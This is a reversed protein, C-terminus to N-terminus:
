VGHVTEVLESMVDAVLEVSAITKAYQMRVPGIAGITGYAHGPVGYQGLVVSLPWLLGGKNEQGIVVRVGKYDPIEEFVAQALSGDEVGQVVSRVQDKDAFEPQDLLKRLGDFYHDLSELRDENKLMLVTSGVLDKEFSSLLMEKSEIESSSLGVLMENAKNVSSELDASDLPERTRILQRRLGAQEFVVILMLVLDQLPVLQIHRVKSEQAKPFTVIAMNDILRSLVAAAVSTWVDVDTEVKNLEDRISSRVTDHTQYYDYTSVTEVYFRYGKDLPVSGASSHPRTIYGEHELEAVDNRITASSVGLGHDRAITESAIPLAMKIYDGVISNLVNNKRSSLIAM